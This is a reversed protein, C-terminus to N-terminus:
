RAKTMPKITKAQVSSGQGLLKAEQELQENTKLPRNPFEKKLFEKIDKDDLPKGATETLNNEM